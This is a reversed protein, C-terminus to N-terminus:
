VVLGRKRLPDLSSLRLCGEEELVVGKTKLKSMTRSATERALGALIAIEGQSLPPMLALPDDVGSSKRALYALADLLRTTADSKQIGFRRNLDRLRAAELRAIGLALNVNKALVAQFGRGQLKLLRVTSLTVVDASRADGDLVSIEGLLEGGGVLSLVSEEGDANFSRVKALGSIVVMLNEGWDAEMVLTQGPVVEALRHRDLLTELDQETLDAFFPIARLADPSFAEPM